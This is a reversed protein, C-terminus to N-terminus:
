VIVFVPLPPLTPEGQLYWAVVKWFKLVTSTKFVIQSSCEEKKKKKGYIAWLTGRYSVPDEDRSPIQLDSTVQVM